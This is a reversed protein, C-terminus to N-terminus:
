RDANENTRQRKKAQHAGPRADSGLERLAHYGFILLVIALVTYEPVFISMPVDGAPFPGEGGAKNLTRYLNRGKRRTEKDM